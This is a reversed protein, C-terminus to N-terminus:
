LIINDELHKIFTRGPVPVGQEAQLLATLECGQQARWSPSKCKLGHLSLYIVVSCCHQHKSRLSRKFISVYSDENQVNLTCVSKSILVSDLLMFGLMFQAQWISSTLRSVFTQLLDSIDILCVFTNTPSYNKKLMWDPQRLLPLM